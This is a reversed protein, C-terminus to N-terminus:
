EEIKQSVLRHIFDLLVIREMCCWGVAWNRNTWLGDTIIGGDKERQGGEWATILQNVANAYCIQITLLVPSDSSSKSLSNSSINKAGSLSKVASSTIGVSVFLALCLAVLVLCLGRRRTQYLGIRGRFPRQIGRGGSVLLCSPFFSVDWRHRPLVIIRYHRPYPRVLPSRPVRPRSYGVM